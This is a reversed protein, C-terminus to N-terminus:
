PSNGPKRSCKRKRQILCGLLLAVLALSASVVLTNASVYATATRAILSPDYVLGKKKGDHERESGRVDVTKAQQVLSDLVLAQKELKEGGTKSQYRYDSNLVEDRIRTGSTWGPQTFTDQALALGMEFESVIYERKYAEGGRAYKEYGATPFWFGDVTQKMETVGYERVPESGEGRVCLLYKTVLFDRAPCIYFTESSFAEGDKTYELRLPYADVGSIEEMKGVSVVSAQKLREKGIYMPLLNQPGFEANGIPQTTVLGAGPGIIRFDMKRSLKGDFTVKTHSDLGSAKEWVESAFQLNDESAISGIFIGDIKFGVPPSEGTSSKSELLTTSYVARFTRASTRAFAIGDVLDNPTYGDEGWLTQTSVLMLLATVFCLKGWSTNLPIKKEEEQRLFAM